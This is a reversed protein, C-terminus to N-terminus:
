EIDSDRSSARGDPGGPADSSNSGTVAFPLLASARGKGFFLGTSTTQIVEVAKCLNDQLVMRNVDRM